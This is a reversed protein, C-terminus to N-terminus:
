GWGRMALRERILRFVAVARFATASERDFVPYGLFDGPFRAGLKRATNVPVLACREQEFWGHSLTDWVFGFDEPVRTGMWLVHSRFPRPHFSTSMTGLSDASLLTVESIPEVRSWSALVKGKRIIEGTTYEFSEPMEDVFRRFATRAGFHFGCKCFTGRPGTYVRLPKQPPVRQKSWDFPWTYSEDALWEHNDSAVVAAVWDPDPHEWNNVLASDLDISVASVVSASLTELGSLVEELRQSDFLDIAVMERMGRSRALFEPLERDLRFTVRATM